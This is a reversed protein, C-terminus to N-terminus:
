NGNRKTQDIFADDKVDWRYGFIWTLVLVPFHLIVRFFRLRQVTSNTVICQLLCLYMRIIMASRYNFSDKFFFKIHILMGFSNCFLLFIFQSGILFQTLGKQMLMLIHEFEENLYFGDRGAGKISSPIDQKAWLNRSWNRIFVTRKSLASKTKGM